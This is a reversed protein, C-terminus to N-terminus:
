MRRRRVMRRRRPRKQMRVKQRYISFGSCKCLWFSLNETVWRSTLLCYRGQHSAKV